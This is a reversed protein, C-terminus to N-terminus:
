REGSSRELDKMEQRVRRFRGLISALYGLYIVWAVTYAAKLFGISSM